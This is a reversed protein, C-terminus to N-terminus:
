PALSYEIVFPVTEPLTEPTYGLTSALIARAGPEDFAGNGVIVIANVVGETPLDGMLTIPQDQAEWQIVTNRVALSTIINADGQNVIPVLIEVPETEFFATSASPTTLERWLGIRIHGSDDSGFGVVPREAAIRGLVLSPMVGEILEAGRPSLVKGSFGTFHEETLAAVDGSYEFADSGRQATVSLTYVGEATYDHEGHTGPTSNGDGFDITVGTLETDTVDVVLNEATLLADQVEVAEGSGEFVELALNDTRVYYYAHHARNLYRYAYDTWNSEDGGEPGGAISRSLPAYRYGQERRAVTAIADQTTAQADALWAEATDALGPDFLLKSRRLHILAGYIQWAHRARLMNIDIGDYIENFWPLGKDPVMPRVADLRELWAIHEREMRELAPLIRALWWDTEDLTWGMIQKPSPPLPHFKIGVSAAIETENDSGVLYALLAEDYIFDREQSVILAELVSQTEPGAEGLTHTIDALCDTYRYELDAAMHFSCYENQWYGWEHGTGFVRHGDLKGELMFAINQLDRDRAEITIPLYLPVANDFTLWWAAEPFYWIRRTLYEEAMFEFLNNFNENGYVPAPRFLDYFMLTHVKVGLSPPGFKPLDYYRVGYNETPEGATGHNTALVVTGPYTDEIYNAIFTIQRVADLDPIETFESPNFTFHFQTPLPDVQMRADIAEAIQDEEPRPDDPDIINSAGQQQNHLSFGASRPFGRMFGYGELEGQGVGGTGFSAFNKVQWDIYRQAEPFYQEDGLRFADGLELPHTLHLSVSRWRFDPTHERLMPAEAFGPADPVYEEEPHFFRVGIAHLWAYAAYQRGLLGGGVLAVHAGYVEGEEGCRTEEYRWTQEHAWPRDPNVRTELRADALGDGVLVVTGTAAVCGPDESSTSLEATMGMAELYDAVDQAALTIAEPANTSVRISWTSPPSAGPPDGTDVLTESTNQTDKPDTTNPDDDCSIFITAMLILFWGRQRAM